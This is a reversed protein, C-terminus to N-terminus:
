QGDPRKDDRDPIVRDSAFSGPARDRVTGESTVPREVRDAMIREGPTITREVPAADAILLDNFLARYHVMAMRLDETSAQNRADRTAIDHAARYETVVNPHDVSIDAARQEFDAIPYGRVQMLDAVLRDAEKVAGAPDDVFRAQDAQWSQEFRTRDALALPRIKLAEVRETRKLLEAEARGRDKTSRLTRDYESGFKEHLTRTRRQGVIILAVATLALVIIIGILVPSM